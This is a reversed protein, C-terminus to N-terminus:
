PVRALTRRAEPELALQWSTPIADAGYFGGAIAGTMCAITDTDGGLSLANIIAGEFSASTHLAWLASGVSRSALVDNGIQRAVEAPTSDRLAGVQAVVSVLSGAHRTAADTVAAREATRVAAHTAVAIVVAGDVAEPHAHTVVASRRALEVVHAESAGAHLAAVSAVRAAAGNGRSGDVWFSTTAEQWPVRGRVARFVSRVGKGYGRAPEHTFSMLRVFHEQDLAGDFQLSELLALTMEGDDSHGLTGPADRRRAFEALIRAADSVATGEYPRGWADGVLAGILAGRAREPAAAPTPTHM